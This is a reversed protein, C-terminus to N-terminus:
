PQKKPGSKAGGKDFSVEQWRGHMLLQIPQYDTKYSMKRCGGVWYGLYLWPLGFRRAESIQSLISYVGPSDASYEPDFFTYVASLANDSFDTVAVSILQDQDYMCLFMTESWSGILFRDFDEPMPNAMEGDGHRSDLYRRYLDFYAPTFRANEWTLTFRQRNKKLLRRHRRRYAFQEVPIRTAICDHCPGCDPRYIESGSRRFGSEQLTKYLANDKELYPDVFLTRAARGELYSCPHWDSRYFRVSSLPRPRPKEPSTV